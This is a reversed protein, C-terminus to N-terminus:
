HGKGLDNGVQQLWQRKQRGPKMRGTLDYECIQRMISKALNPEHLRELHGIWKLRAKQVATYIDEIGAAEM